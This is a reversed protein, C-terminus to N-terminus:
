HSLIALIHKRQTSGKGRIFCWTQNLTGLHSLHYLFQRGICSVLLCPNSGQTPFIGQLLVYCCVGTKKVSDYWPCLLRALQTEYPWLSHFHFYSLWTWSKAVGHVICDMSNELGSYQLPYGKGEGTSRGFGSISSLDGVNCASEKGVSGCPFGLFVPTPLRDKRWCIKGFWSISSSDGANCTSEKVVSSNPFGLTVFLWVCSFHSLM